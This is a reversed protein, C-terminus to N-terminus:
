EEGMSRRVHRRWDALKGSAWSATKGFAAGIATCTKGEIYYRHAVSREMMTGISLLRSATRQRTSERARDQQRQQYERNVQREGAGASQYRVGRRYASRPTRMNDALEKAVAYRLCRLVCPMFSENSPDYRSLADYFSLHAAGRIDDSLGNANRRYRQMATPGIAHFLLEDLRTHLQLVIEDRLDDAHTRYYHEALIDIEPAQM